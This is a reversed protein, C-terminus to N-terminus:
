LARTNSEMWSAFSVAFSAFCGKNAIGAASRKPLWPKLAAALACIRSSNNCIAFKGWVRYRGETTSTCLPICTSKYPLVQTALPRTFPQLHMTSSIYVAVTLLCGVCRAILPTQSSAQSGSAIKSRTACAFHVRGRFEKGGKGRSIDVCPRNKSCGEEIVKLCVVIM